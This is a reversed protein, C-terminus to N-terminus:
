GKREDTAKLIRVPQRSQGMRRMLWIGMVFTFIFVVLLLQMAPDSYASMYSSNLFLLIIAGTAVFSILRAAHRPTERDAEVERRAKIDESVADALAELSEALSGTRQEATLKLYAVLMDATPDDLDDAFRQLASQTDWGANLRAVLLRVHPEIQPPASTLSFRIANELDQGTTTLGSLSRAWVQLADLRPIIAADPSKAFLWYAFIALAPVAVILIRAGSSMGTYLGLVISAALMVRQNRSMGKYWARLRLVRAPAPRAPRDPAPQFALILVIIGILAIGAALSALFATM